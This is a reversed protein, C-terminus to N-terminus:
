KIIVRTSQNNVKVVYVGNLHNITLPLNNIIKGNEVIQGVANYITYKSDEKALIVIEKQTNVFVSVQDRESTTVDTSVGPARFLLSFRTENNASAETTSFTYDTEPTLETEKNEQKDRLYIRTGMPLNSMETTILKLTAAANLSFGLPLEMNDTISNLGNIVLREDGIRSYLDPVSASNNMMKPSDYADYNNSADEDLYVLMEDSDAGNQLQMRLSSRTSTKPAKMLNYDDDRHERMGNNFYMKTTETGSKVRVWFAQAPPIFRTISTNAPLSGNSVVFSGAGAGNWTVFTYTNTSVNTNKTRYYYTNELNPNAAAVDSWDIYSPYPNGVLNFGKGKADNRTLDFATTINGNNPTGSFQVTAGANTKAIYGKGAEMTTGNALGKWYLTSNGPQTAFETNNGGELYEYYYEMNTAPASASSVPSSVYWNRASGLYQKATVTGTLNGSQLMTATGNADSELTIGNTVTLTQGSNLTLKGGPNVILASSTASAAVTIEHTNQINISGAVNETPIVTVDAWTNDGTSQWSTVNGWNGTTKSRYTVYEYAGRDVTHRTIGRQDVTPVGTAYGTNKAVSNSSIALTKTEGGNNALTAALGLNIAAVSSVNDSSAGTTTNAAFDFAQSTINNRSEKLKINTATTISYDSNDPRTNSYIINNIAVVKDTVGAIYIGNATSTTLESTNYAFTNNILKVDSTGTASLSLNLAGSTASSSSTLKVINGTFTSNQVLLTANSGTTAFRLASGTNDATNGEFLCRDITLSINVGATVYVSIAGGDAQALSTRKKIKNGLFYCDEFVGTGGTFNVAGGYYAAQNNKFVVKRCTLSSAGIVNIAGGSKAQSTHWYDFDQFTVNEIVVTPTVPGSSSGINFCNMTTGALGRIISTSKDTGQITINKLITRSVYYDFTGSINIIDGDVLAPTGSFMKNLTQFATLESTGNNSDNGGTSRVYYTTQTFAPFNALLFLGLLTIKITRM